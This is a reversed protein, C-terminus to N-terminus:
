SVMLANLPPFMKAASFILFAATAPEPAIPEPIAWSRAIASYSTVIISM